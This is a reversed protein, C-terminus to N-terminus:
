NRVNRTLRRIMAVLSPALGGYHVTWNERGSPNFTKDIQGIKSQHAVLGVRADTLRLMSGAHINRHQALNGYIFDTRDFSGRLGSRFSGLYAMGDVTAGAITTATSDLTAWPGTARDGNPIATVGTVWRVLVGQPVDQADVAYSLGETVEAGASTNVHVMTFWDLPTGERYADPYVRLGLLWDVTSVMVNLDDGADNVNQGVLSDTVMRIAERLTTGAPIVVPAPNSGDVAASAEIPSSWTSSNGPTALARLAGIGLCTGVVEQIAIYPSTITGIPFSNSRETVAWDLLAEVGVATVTITRGTEGFAPRVAFTQVWGRFMYAIEPTLVVTNHDYLIVEAGEAVWQDLNPDDITFEMSSVGGAGQESIQITEIPTRGIMEVGGVWLSYDKAPIGDSLITALVAGVAM